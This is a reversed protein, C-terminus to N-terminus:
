NLRSQMERLSSRVSGDVVRDGSRVVLGGLINPDVFFTVESANTQKKVEAQEADSLPLASTVEVAGGIGSARQPLESIFQQVLESQRKEDLGAGVLKQTAAMAIATVQDRLADLQRNREEEARTRAEAVIKEAEAQAEAILAEAAEDGRSRAEDAFKTAERRADETIQAAEEEANARAKAAVEADELQKAIKMARDDLMRTMPRWALFGLALIIVGFNVLQAILFGANIGLADV